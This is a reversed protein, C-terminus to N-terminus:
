NDTLIDRLDKKSGGKEVPKSKKSAPPPSTKKPQQPPAPPNNKVTEREKPPNNPREAPKETSPNETPPNESAIPTSPNSPLPTSSSSPPNNPYSRQSTMPQPSPNTVVEPKKTDEAKPKEVQKPTEKPQTMNGGFIFPLISTIGALALFLVAAAGGIAYHVSTLKDFFSVPKAAQYNTTEGTFMEGLRTTKIENPNTPALRTGKIEAEKLKEGVELTIPVESKLVPIIPETPILSQPIVETVEQKIEGSQLGPNSPRSKKKFNHMTGFGLTLNPLAFGIELFAELFDGASDFRDDPNKAVAKMIAAEVESPIEPNLQRPLVPMQETQMKMLEFDNESEFPLKGTLMEYLMIGLGYVDSRADTELGKVQEPSMYELTGIVNGIRTMRNTGLLRAIGFDLVKLIGDEALMMNGPKIDRHIIGRQHAYNIGELAQCFYPIAEDTPIKGRRYLLHDLTEGKIYELVMFLHDGHRFLSYLTAINPHSLKALTVAESRFREVVSTQRALEPRLVKIAVERDLMTDVGKYVMGVGGEGLAELIKYNGVVQGIM